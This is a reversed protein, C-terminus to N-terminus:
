LIKFNKFNKVKKAIQNASQSHFRTDPQVVNFCRISLLCFYVCARIYRVRPTSVARSTYESQPLTSFISNLGILYFRFGKNNKFYHLIIIYMTLINQLMIIYMTLIYQLMIIYMYMTLIYQLMIIYMTLIYQLMIIYMTLIYQLMIIYM